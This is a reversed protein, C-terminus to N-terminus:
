WLFVCLYLFIYYIYNVNLEAIEKVNCEQCKEAVESTTFYCDYLWLGRGAKTWANRTRTAVGASPAPDRMGSWEMGSFVTDSGQTNCIMDRDGKYILVDVRADDLLKAIYPTVDWPGNGGMFNLLGATGPGNGVWDPNVKPVCVEWVRGAGGGCHLPM